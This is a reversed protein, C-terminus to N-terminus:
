LDLTSTYRSITNGTTGYYWNEWLWKHWFHVLHDVNRYNFRHFLNLQIEDNFKDWDTERFAYCKNKYLLCPPRTEFLLVAKLPHHGFFYRKNKTLRSQLLQDTGCETFCDNSSSLVNDLRARPQQPLSLEYYKELIEKKYQNNSSMTSWKTRQFNFDGTVIIDSSEKQKM